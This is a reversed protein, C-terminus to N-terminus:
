PNQQELATNMRELEERLQIIIQQLRDVEEQLLLITNQQDAMAKHMAANESLCQHWEEAIGVSM